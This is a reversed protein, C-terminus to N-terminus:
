LHEALWALLEATVEDRNSENLMEHRGERYLRKRVHRVGARELDLVLKDIGKGKSVPDLEGSFVYIPLDARIRALRRSEGLEILGALFDVWLQNTCMFGCRPDAVYKDVEAPDRSLWDFDTRSPKFANNFSGFSLFDILQSKGMPGQRLCELKAVVRGAHVLAGGGVNAGSLVVADTQDSHDLVFCLTMFAGMSHGMLCRKAGPHRGAIFAALSGLDRVVANWGDVGFWGLESDSGATKGHGRHDQAYVAYGEAVLAEALRAYRAAHEAMGHAIQITARVEVEGGEPSPDPSWHYVTLAKGDDATFSLEESKM